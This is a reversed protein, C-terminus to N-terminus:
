SSPRHRLDTAGAKVMRGLCDVMQPKDVQVVKGARRVLGGATVEVKEERGGAYSITLAAIGQDKQDRALVGQELIGLFEAAFAQGCLVSTHKEDPGALFVDGHIAEPVDSTAVHGGSCGALLLLVSAALSRRNM